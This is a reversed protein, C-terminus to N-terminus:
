GGVGALRSVTEALTRGLGMVRAQQQEDVLAGDAFAAHANRVAVQDPLIICGLNGLISRVHVLGRLGGLAGPSASMLSVVKGRFAILPSEDGDDSRSVWDITNKLVGTISSNYEPAAILWADHESMLQKLAKAEAPKGHASEEDQDYLPLRYDRLDLHTVLAGADKAGAEAVQVLQNNFSELRTSGAFGLIRVQGTTM